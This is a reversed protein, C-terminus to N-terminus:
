INGDSFVVENNYGPLDTRLLKSFQSPIIIRKVDDLVFNIGGYVRWERELYYNEVDSDNKSVKWFKLFCLFRKLFFRQFKIQSEERSTHPRSPSLTKHFAREYDLYNQLEKRFITELQNNKETLDTSESSVYLVPSAGKNALFEKKFSLGFLSYKKMHIQLDALPIDAFCVVDPIFAENIDVSSMNITSRFILKTVERPIDEERINIKSSSLLWGSTLIKLLLQYQANQSERINRGVFHTLLESVYRQM